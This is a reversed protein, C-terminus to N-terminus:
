GGAPRGATRCQLLSVASHPHPVPGWCLRPDRVALVAPVAGCRCPRQVAPMHPVAPIRASHGGEWLAWLTQTQGQTTLLLLKM